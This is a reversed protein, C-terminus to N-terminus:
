HPCVGPGPKLSTDWGARWFHTSIGVFLFLLVLHRNGPQQVILYWTTPCCQGPAHPLQNRNRSSHLSEAAPWMLQKHRLKRELLVLTTLVNFRQDARYLARAGSEPCSKSEPCTCRPVQRALGPQVWVLCRGEANVNQPEFKESIFVEPPHNLGWSCTRIILSWRIAGGAAALEEQTPGAGEEPRVPWLQHQSHRDPTRSCSTVVASPPNPTAIHLTQDGDLLTM